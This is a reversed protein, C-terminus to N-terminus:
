YSYCADTADGPKVGIGVLSNTCAARLMAGTVTHAVVAMECSSKSQPGVIYGNNHLSIECRQPSASASGATVVPLTFGAAVVAVVAVLRRVGISSM